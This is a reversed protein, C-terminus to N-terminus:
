GGESIKEESVKHVSIKYALVSINHPDSTYKWFNLIIGPIETENQGNDTRLRPTVSIVARWNRIGVSHSPCCVFCAATSVAINEETSDLSKM